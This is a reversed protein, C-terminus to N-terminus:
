NARKVVVPLYCKYPEIQWHRLMLFGNGDQGEGPIYGFAEQDGSWIRFQCFEEYWGSQTPITNWTLTFPEIAFGEGPGEPCGLNWEYCQTDVV